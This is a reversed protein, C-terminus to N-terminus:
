FLAKGQTSQKQIVSYFGLQVGSVLPQHGPASSTNQVGRPLPPATHPTEQRSGLMEVCMQKWLFVDKVQSPFGARKGFVKQADPYTGPKSFSAEDMAREPSNRAEGQLVSTFNCKLGAGPKNVGPLNILHSKEREQDIRRQSTRNM